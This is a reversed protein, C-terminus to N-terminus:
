KRPILDSTCKFLVEHAETMLSDKDDKTFGTTIELSKCLDFVAMAEVCKEQAKTYTLKYGSDTITRYLSFFRVRYDYRLKEYNPINKHDELFSTIADAGLYDDYDTNPPEM